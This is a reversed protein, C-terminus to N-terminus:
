AVSSLVRKMPKFINDVISESGKHRYMFRGLLPHYFRM